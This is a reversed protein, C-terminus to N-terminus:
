ALRLVTIAASVSHAGGASPTVTLAANGLPNIVSLVADEFVTIVAIGVIQGGSVARGVTTDPLGVGGIALQLQGAGTVPVQWQVLYTGGLLLNISTTSGRTISGDTPGDKPFAVAAGPGIPSPNETPMIAYFNAYGAVSSGNAGTPGTAGTPGESPGTAGTAGAAGTPGTPGPAGDSGAVSKIPVTFLSFSATKYSM